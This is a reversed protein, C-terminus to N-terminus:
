RDDPDSSKQVSAATEDDHSPSLANKLRGVKRLKGQLYQAYGAPLPTLLLEDVLPLFYYLSRISSLPPLHRDRFTRRSTALLLADLIIGLPIQRDFLQGALRRDLPRARTPTDPLQLYASLVAAVYAHRPMPSSM